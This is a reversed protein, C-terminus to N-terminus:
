SSGGEMELYQLKETKIFTKGVQACINFKNLLKSNLINM